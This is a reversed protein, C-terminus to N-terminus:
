LISCAENFSLRPGRPYLKSADGYGLNVLFNSKYKGDPFFLTDLKAADFGSMPGVDLGLSRAALMLYGGQLSGNRFGAEEAAVANNAYIPKADYAPYLRPLEEYFESDTAVIVTASAQMTQPINAEMLATALKEKAPKSRVFVFRAPSMNFSTPAWKTLDYLQQLLADSIERELFAHHSRAETFLQKLANENITTNSMCKRVQPSILNSSTDNGRLRSDM